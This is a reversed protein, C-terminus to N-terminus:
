KIRQINVDRVYVWTDSAIAPDRYTGLKLYHQFNNYMNGGVAQQVLKGNLYVAVRGNAGRSWTIDVTMTHWVGRSFPILGRTTPNPTGYLLALYDQGDIQGYGFGISPSHAAFGTWTEGINRNPQDHWDGFLM